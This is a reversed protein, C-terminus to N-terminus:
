LPQWHRAECVSDYRATTESQQRSKANLDVLRKLAVVMGMWFWFNPYYLVSVFTGSVLFGVVSGTLGIAIGQLWQESYSEEEIWFSRRKGSRRIHRLDKLSSLLMWLFLITGITGLEPLLTFYLSHVPRGSFYRGEFGEDPEYEGVRWPYNGAGVGFVPYDAFMKWGAEWAYLRQQGTGTGGTGEYEASITDMRQFFSEPAFAWVGTIALGVVTTALLKRPAKYLCYLGAGILGLFGGRSFTMLTAFLFIGTAIFLWVRKRFEKAHYGLCFTLPTIMNLTLAFDNSDRVFAGVSSGRGIVGFVTLYIHVGIWARLMTQYKEFSDVSNVIALYTIFLLLMQWTTNFAARNNAAFLVSSGMLALFAVFVKTQAQAFSIRGSCVLAITLLVTNMMSLRLVSLGPFLDQPRGYELLLASITLWFLTGYAGSQSKSGAGAWAGHMEDERENDPLARAQYGKLNNNTTLV